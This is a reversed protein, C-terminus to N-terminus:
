ARQQLIGEFAQRVSWFVLIWLVVVITALPLGTPAMLAHFLIINVIVPALLTLGLPVYRNALLLIGGILQLGYVPVMYHTAFAAGLFDGAHGTPMPGMPIFHMFGNLGFVVFVLGLLYRAILSVIKM